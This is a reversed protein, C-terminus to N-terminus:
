PVHKWTLGLEVNRITNSTVGYKRALDSRFAGRSTERRIERVAEATLKATGSDEGHRVRRVQTAGSVHSWTKGRIVCSMAGVSIGFRKALRAMTFGGQYLRRAERVRKEAMRQRSRTRSSRGGKVKFPGGAYRWTRGRIADYIAHQSVKYKEALLEVRIGEQYLIRIRRARRATLGKRRANSKQNANAEGRSGPRPTRQGPPRSPCKADDPGAQDDLDSPENSQGPRTSNPEHGEGEGFTGPQLQSPLHEDVSVM